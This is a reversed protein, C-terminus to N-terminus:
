TPLLMKKGLGHHGPGRDLAATSEQVDTNPRQLPRLPRGLEIARAARCRQGLLTTWASTALGNPADKRPCTPESGPGPDLM